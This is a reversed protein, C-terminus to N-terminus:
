NRQFTHQGIDQSSKTWSIQGGALSIKSCKNREKNKLMALPEMDMLNVVYGGPRSVHDVQENTILPGALNPASRCYSLSRDLTPAPRLVRTGKPAIKSFEHMIEKATDPGSTNSLSLPTYRPLAEVAKNISRLSRMAVAAAEIGCNEPGQVQWRQIGRRAKENLVDMAKDSMVSTHSLHHFDSVTNSSPIAAYSSFFQRRREREGCRQDAGSRNRLLDMQARDGTVNVTKTHRIRGKENVNVEHKRLDQVRQLAGNVTEGSALKALQVMDRKAVNGVGQLWGPIVAYHVPKLIARLAEECQVDLNTSGRRVDPPNIVGVQSPLWPGAGSSFATRNM